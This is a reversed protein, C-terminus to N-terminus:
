LRPLPPKNFLINLEKVEKAAKWDDLGETWVWTNPKIGVLKLRDISLPGKQNDGDMYFFEQNAVKSVADSRVKMRLQEEEKIAEINKFKNWVESTRYTAIAEAPVWLICFSKNVGDFEIDVFNKQPVIAHNIIATLSGCGSFADIGISRVSNPITVSKLNACGYFAYNGISITGEEIIVTTISSRDIDWEPIGIFYDPVARKGSITLTGGELRWWPIKEETRLPEKRVSRRLREEEIIREEHQEETEGLILLLFLCLLPTFLIAFFIWGMTSRGRKRASNYVVALFIIYVLLFLFVFIGYVALLYEVGGMKRVKKFNFLESNKV